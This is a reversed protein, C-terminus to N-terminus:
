AVPMLSNVPLAMEGPRTEAYNDPNVEKVQAYEEGDINRFGLVVFTGARIGKVIANEYITYHASNVRYDM